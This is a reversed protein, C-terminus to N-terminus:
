EPNTVIRFKYIDNKKFAQKIAKFAPYKALQDGKVLLNLRDPNEGKFADQIAKVWHMLENNNSDSIPIGEMQSAPMPEKLDLWTKLKRLPMGILDMRNFRAIESDNLNLERETNINKIITSKHASDGILIYVKGDGTLSFVIAQEKSIKTSASSPTNIRVAEPPKSNQGFCGTLFSILCIILILKM